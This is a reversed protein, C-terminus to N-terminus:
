KKTEKSRTENYLNTDRFDIAQYYRDLWEQGKESEWTTRDWPLERFMNEEGVIPVLSDISDWESLSDKTVNLKHVTFAINIWHRFDAIIRNIDYGSQDCPGTITWVKEDHVFSNTIFLSPNDSAFGKSAYLTANMM